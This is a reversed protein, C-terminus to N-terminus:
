SPGGFWQNGVFFWTQILKPKSLCHEDNEWPVDVPLPSDILSTKGHTLKLPREHDGDIHSFTLFEENWTHIVCLDYLICTYILYLADMGDTYLGDVSLILCYEMHIPRTADIFLRDKLRDLHLTWPLEGVVCIPIEHCTM